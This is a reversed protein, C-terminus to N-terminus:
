GEYLSDETDMNRELRIKEFEKLQEMQLPMIRIFPRSEKILAIAETLPIGRSIFYAAAMTPARGMGAACHIYVKGGETTIRRIFEVGQKLQEVSPEENDVTPLYCYNDFILGHAADDYETRLNVSGNIGMRELKRKGHMRFQPGVFVQPTIRTYEAFPIGTIFTVGRVGFWILTTKVGQTRLRDIVIRIAKLPLALVKRTIKMM